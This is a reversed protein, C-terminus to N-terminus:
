HDNLRYGKENLEPIITIEIPCGRSSFWQLLREAEEKSIERDHTFIDIAAAFRGVDSIKEGFKKADELSIKM